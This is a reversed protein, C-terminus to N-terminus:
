MVKQLITSAGTRVVYTKINDVTGFTGGNLRWVGAGREGAETLRQTASM